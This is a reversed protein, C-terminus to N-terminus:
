TALGNEGLLRICDAKIRKMIMRSEQVCRQHADSCVIVKDSENTFLM